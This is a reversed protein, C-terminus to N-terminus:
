RLSPYTSTLSHTPIRHGAGLLATVHLYVAIGRGRAAMSLFDQWMICHRMQVQVPATSGTIPTGLLTAQCQFQDNLTCECLFSFTRLPFPLLYEETYPVIEHFIELPMQTSLIPAVINSTFVSCGQFNSCEECQGWTHFFVTRGMIKFCSRSFTKVSHYLLM